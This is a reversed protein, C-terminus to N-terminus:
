WIPMLTKTLGVVAYSLSKRSIASTLSRGGFCTVGLKLFVLLVELPSGTTQITVGTPHTAIKWVNDRNDM